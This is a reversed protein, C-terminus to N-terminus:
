HFWGLALFISIMRIRKPHEEIRTERCSLFVGQTDLKSPCSLFIDFDLDHQKEVNHRLPHLHFLKVANMCSMPGLGLPIVM